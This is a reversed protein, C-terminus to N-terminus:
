VKGGNTFVNAEDLRILSPRQWRQNEGCGGTDCVVSWYSHEVKSEWRAVVAAEVAEIQGTSM